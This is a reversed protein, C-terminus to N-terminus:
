PSNFGIINVATYNKIELTILAKAFNVALDFYQQYTLTIWQDPKKEYNLAAKNSFKAVTELWM